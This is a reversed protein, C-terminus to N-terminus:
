YRRLEDTGYPIKFKVYIEICNYGNNKTQKRPTVVRQPQIKWLETAPKLRRTKPPKKIV